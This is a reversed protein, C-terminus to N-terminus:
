KNAVFALFGAVAEYPRQLTHAQDFQRLTQEETLSRAMEAADHLRAGDRIADDHAIERGLCMKGLAVLQQRQFAATAEWGGREFAAGVDGPIADQPRLGNARLYNARARLRHQAAYDYAGIEALNSLRAFKLKM